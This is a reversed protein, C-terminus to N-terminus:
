SLWVDSFVGYNPTVGVVGTYLGNVHTTAGVIAPPTVPMLFPGSDYQIQSIEHGIEIRKAQDVESYGAALLSTLRADNFHTENFPGGPVLFLESAAFLGSYYNYDQAFKWKLYQPGYLNTSTTQVLNVHIGAAAAQQAVVQALAVTGQTIPATTLSVTLGEQGAAKLLAKAQPIDQVRQPLSADYEPAGIGLIDNGLSGQGEFIVELAQPRDIALRLAQRVRVDNFPPMDVRMTIMLGEYTDGIYVRAGGARLPAVSQSSLPGIVDLSGGLLGNTQSTEDEFDTIVVKDLYPRGPVWYNPNRVFVSEVGPSFSGLKFPGTGVPHAEDFDSPLIASASPGALAQPFISFPQSMEVSVTYRDLKRLRSVDVRSLFSAQWAPAKPNLMRRFTAIV